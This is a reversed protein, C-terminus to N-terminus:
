WEFSVDLGYTRPEGVYSILVQSFVSADFGQRRQTEDTLNRVWGSLEISGNPFRYSLRLNHLATAKQGVSYKPLASRPPNLRPNIVGRGETQAFSIEDSWIFDYLPVIRGYRALDFTWEASLSFSFQPSNILRNGSYNNVVKTTVVQPPDGPAAPPQLVGNFSEVQFDLFQSELWGFNGSLVLGDVEPPVYGDLPEFSFEIELGYVQADDANVVEISPLANLDSNLVFVQYDKYKYFFTSVGLRYRGDLWQGKLGVEWSDIVEPRATTVQRALSASANFHGPKWGRAYKWYLTAADDFRYRLVVTGTPAEWTEEQNDVPPLVATIIAHDFQKREWNYRVGGELTFDDLFDWEMGAYAGVSWTNQEYRRHQPVVTNTPPSFNDAENDLEEMLYYAGFNWRFPEEESEGELSLEQYFQWADDDTVSEFLINPTGDSDTVRHRDYGDFSSLVRLEFADIQFDGTVSAGWTDLETPGPRNYDGRRPKSDLNRALRSATYNAQAQDSGPFKRQAREKLIENDPNFYERASSGLRGGRTGEAQPLVSDEDLRSFYGKGVWVMDLDEPEWAVINRVAWRKREGFEAPLEGPLLSMRVLQPGRTALDPGSWIPIPRNEGCFSGSTPPNIPSNPFKGGYLFWGDTTSTPDDAYRYTVPQGLPSVGSGISTGQFRESLPPAGACGNRFFGDRGSYRFSSRMSLGQDALLPLELAGTLDHSNYNGYSTRFSASLQGTPKRSSIRIAGASGNRALGTGQPGREV